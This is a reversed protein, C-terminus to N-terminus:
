ESNKENYNIKIIKKCMLDDRDIKNGPDDLMITSDSIIRRLSRDGSKGGKIRQILYVDGKSYLPEDNEFNAGLIILSRRNDSFLYEERRIKEDVFYFSDYKSLDLHSPIKRSAESVSLVYKELNKQTAPIFEWSDTLFVGFPVTKHRIYIVQKNSTFELEYKNQIQKKLEEKTIRRYLKIRRLNTKGKQETKILLWCNLSPDSGRDVDNWRISLYYKGENEVLTNSMKKENIVQRNTFSRYVTLAVILVYILLLILVWLKKNKTFSNHKDDSDEPIGSSFYLFSYAKLILRFSIYSVIFVICALLLFLVQSGIVSMELMGDDNLMLDPQASRCYAIHFYLSFTLPFLIAITSISAWRSTPWLRLKRWTQNYTTGLIIIPFLFALGWAWNILVIIDIFCILVFTVAIIAFFSFLICGATNYLKDTEKDTMFM